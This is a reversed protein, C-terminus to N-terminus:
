RSTTLATAVDCAADVQERTPSLLEAVLLIGDLVTYSTTLRKREMVCYAGKDGHNGMGNRWTVLRPHGDACFVVYRKMHVPEIKSPHLYNM